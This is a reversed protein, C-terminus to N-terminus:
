AILTTYRMNCDLKEMHMKETSRDYDMASYKVMCSMFLRLMAEDVQTRAAAASHKAKKVAMEAQRPSVTPTESTAATEEVAKRKRVRKPKAPEAAAAEATEEAANSKTEKPAAEQPATKRPRGKAKAAKPSKAMKAEKQAAKEAEAKEKEEARMTLQSRRFDDPVAAAAEQELQAEATALASAPPKGAAAPLEAAPATAAVVESTPVETGALAPPLMKEAAPVMAEAAPLEMPLTQQQDDTSGLM